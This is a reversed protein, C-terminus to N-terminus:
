IITVDVTVGDGCAVECTEDKHESTAKVIFKAEVADTGVYAAPTAQGNTFDEAVIQFVHVSNGSADLLTVAVDPVETALNTVTVITEDAIGDAPVTKDVQTASYEVLSIYDTCMNGADAQCQQLDTQTGVLDNIWNIVLIAALITFGIILVTAILPSIGKKNTLIFV